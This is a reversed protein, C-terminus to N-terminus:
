EKVSTKFNLLLLLGPTFGLQPHYATNLQIRAFGLQLGVGAYSNNTLTAIGARLFVKEHLNYQLGANVSVEQKEQKVIEISVFVKGSAEYGVGIRYISPLREDNTKGLKSSTPNYVHIGTHFKETLHVIIGAEFNV